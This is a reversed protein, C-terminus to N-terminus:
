EAYVTASRPRTDHDASRCSDTVPSVASILQGGVAARFGMHFLGYHLTGANHLEVLLPLQSIDLMSATMERRVTNVLVLRHKELQDLSVIGHMSFEYDIGGKRLADKFVVRTAALIAKRPNISYLRSSSSWRLAPGELLAAHTAENHDFARLKRQIAKTFDCHQKSCPIDDKSLLKRLTGIDQRLWREEIELACPLM